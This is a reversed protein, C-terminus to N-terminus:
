RGALARASHQSDAPVSLNTNSSDSIDSTYRSPCAKQM